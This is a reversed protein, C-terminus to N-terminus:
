WEGAPDAGRLRPRGGGRVRVLCHGVGVAARGPRGGVGGEQAANLRDVFSDNGMTQRLHRVDDVLREALFVAPVTAQSHTRCIFDGYDGFSRSSSM